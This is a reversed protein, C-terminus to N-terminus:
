AKVKITGPATNLIHLKELKYLLEFLALVICLTINNL